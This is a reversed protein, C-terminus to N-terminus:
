MWALGDVIALEEGGGNTSGRDERKQRAGRSHAEDEEFTSVSRLIWPTRFEDSPGRASSSSSSSGGNYLRSKVIHRKAPMYKGTSWEPMVFEEVSERPTTYKRKM